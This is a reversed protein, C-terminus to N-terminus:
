FNGMTGIEDSVRLSITTEKISICGEPLTNIGPIRYCGDRTLYGQQSDNSIVPKCKTMM